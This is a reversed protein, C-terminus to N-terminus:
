DEFRAPAPSVTDAGGARVQRVELAREIAGSAGFRFAGDLGLFGGRDYLKATPFITGPKWDRAARLTLLVSDYGLTAIRYPQGGFRNRYSDSFQRFRTDAVASFWAGRLAPTAAVVSEGSWLETGLIRPAASAAKLVPAASASIRGGDAILVVEYGGKAKLRQAASVVSAASRDYSEMATLTGGQARVSATLAASARQGYEGAPVLAAFRTVGQSKAYGVTRAVSSSPLNGMIFVDRSARGDDNSFSIV